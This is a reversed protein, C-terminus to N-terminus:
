IDQHASLTDEKMMDEEVSDAVFVVIGAMEGDVPRERAGETMEDGARVM